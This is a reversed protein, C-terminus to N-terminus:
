TLFEPHLSSRPVTVFPYAPNGRRVRLSPSAVARSREAHEDEGRLSQGPSLRISPVNALTGPVVIERVGTDKTLAVLDDATTVTHESTNM